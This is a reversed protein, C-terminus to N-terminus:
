RRRVGTRLGAPEPRQHELRAHGAGGHAAWRGPPASDGSGAAARGCGRARGPGPARGRRQRSFREPRGRPGSWRSSIRRGEQVLGSWLGFRGPRRVPRGFQGAIRGAGPRRGDIHLALLRDDGGQCLAFSASEEDQSGGRFVVIPVLVRQYFREWEGRAPRWQDQSEALVEFQSANMMSPVRLTQARRTPLMRWTFPGAAPEM